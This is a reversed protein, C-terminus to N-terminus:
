TKLKLNKLTKLAMITEYYWLIIIIIIMSKLNVWLTGALRSAEPRNTKLLSVHVQAAVTSTNEMFLRKEENDNDDDNDNSNVEPQSM